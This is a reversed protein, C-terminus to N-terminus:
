PIMIFDSVNNNVQLLSAVIKRFGLLSAWMLVNMGQKDRYNFDIESTDLLALTAVINGSKCAYHLASSRDEDM